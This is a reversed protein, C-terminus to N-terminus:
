LESVRDHRRSMVSNRMNKKQFVIFTYGTKFVNTNRARERSTNRFAQAVVVVVWFGCIGYDGLSARHVSASLPAVAALLLGAVRYFSMPSPWHASFFLHHRRGGDPPSRLPHLCPLIPHERLNVWWIGARLRRGEKPGPPSKAWRKQDTRHRPRAEHGQHERWQNGLDWRWGSLLVSVSHTFLYCVKASVFVARRHRCVFGHISFILHLYFKRQEIKRRQRQNDTLAQRWPFVIEM